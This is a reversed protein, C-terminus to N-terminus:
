HNDWWRESRWGQDHDNRDHDHRSSVYHEANHARYYRAQARNRWSHWQHDRDWYGDSYGYAANGLSLGISVNAAAAPASAVVPAVVLALAVFAGKVLHKM